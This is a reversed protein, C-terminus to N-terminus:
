TQSYEDLINGGSSEYNSIESIHYFNIDNKSDPISSDRQM